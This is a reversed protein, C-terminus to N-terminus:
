HVTQETSHTYHLYRIRERDQNMLRPAELPPMMTKITPRMAEHPANPDLNATPM